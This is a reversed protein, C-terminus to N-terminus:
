GGRGHVAMYSHKTEQDGQQQIATPQSHAATTQKSRGIAHVGDGKHCCLYSGPDWHTQELKERNNPYSHKMHCITFM